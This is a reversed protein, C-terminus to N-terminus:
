QKPTNGPTLSTDPSLSGTGDPLGSTVGPGPTGSTDEPSNTADLPATPAGTASSPPLDNDIGSGNQDNGNSCAVISFLMLVCVLIVMTKKM